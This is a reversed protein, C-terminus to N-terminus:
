WRSRCAKGVRREESRWWTLVDTNDLVEQTLGHEPEDLTATRAVIGPDANLFGAIVTHMGNPYVKKVAEHTKEHRGENWVTVRIKEAM